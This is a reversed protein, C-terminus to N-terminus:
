EVLTIKVNDVWGNLKNNSEYGVGYFQITIQNAESPFRFDEIIEVWDDQSSITSYSTLNNWSDNKKYEVVGGIDFDKPKVFASFRYTRGEEFKTSSITQRFVIDGHYNISEPVTINLSQNGSHSVLSDIRMKSPFGGEPNYPYIEWGSANDDDEFDGNLVLNEANTTTDQLNSGGVKGFASLTYVRYYYSLGSLFETDTFTTDDLFTSVFILEGTTEDLGSDEKRFVKYERFDSEKSASWTLKIGNNNSYPYELRYLRSPVPLKVDELTNEGSLLVIPSSISSIGLASNYTTNLNHEGATINKIQFFGDENTVASWNLVDDVNVTVNPVSKGNFILKGSISAAENSDTIDGKCATILFIFFLLYRM